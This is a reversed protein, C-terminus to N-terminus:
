DPVALIATYVYTITLNSQTSHNVIFPTIILELKYRLNQHEHNQSHTDSIERLIQCM